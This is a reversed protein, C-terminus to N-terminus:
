EPLVPLLYRVHKGRTAAYIVQAAVERPIGRNPNVVFVGDCTDITAMAVAVWAYLEEEVLPQGDGDFPAGTALVTHGGEALLEQAIAIAGPDSVNLLAVTMPEDWAADDDVGPGYGSSM